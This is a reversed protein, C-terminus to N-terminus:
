TTRENDEHEKMKRKYGYVVCDNCNYQLCKKCKEGDPQIGWDDFVYHKGGVPDTVVISLNDKQQPTLTKMLIQYIQEQGMLTLGGISFTVEYNSNNAM